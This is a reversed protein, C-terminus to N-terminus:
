LSLFSRVQVMYAQETKLALHKLRMVSVMTDAAQKWLLDADATRESEAAQGSKLYYEYFAIADKAQDVQWDECSRALNRLFKKVEGSPLSSDFDQDAFAYAKSVWSVFYPASQEPVLHKNLLYNQFSKMSM